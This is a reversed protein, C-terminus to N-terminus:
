IAKASKLQAHNYEAKARDLRSLLSFAPRATSLELSPTMRTDCMCARYAVDDDSEEVARCRAINTREDEEEEYARSRHSSDIAICIVKGQM